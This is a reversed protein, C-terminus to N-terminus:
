DLTMILLPLEIQLTQLCSEIEVDDCVMNLLDAFFDRNDNHRIHM